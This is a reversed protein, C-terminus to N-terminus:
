SIFDGVPAEYSVVLSGTVPAGRHHKSVSLERGKGNQKGGKDKFKNIRKGTKHFVKLDILRLEDDSMNSPGNAIYDAMADEINRMKKAFRAM